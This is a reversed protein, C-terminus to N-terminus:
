WVRERFPLPGSPILPAKPTIMVFVFFAMVVVREIIDHSESGLM